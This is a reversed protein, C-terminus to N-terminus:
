KGNRVEDNKWAPGTYFTGGKARMDMEAVMTRHHVNSLHALIRDRGLTKDEDSYEYGCLFCSYKGDHTMALKM